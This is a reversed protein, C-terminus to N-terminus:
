LVDLKGIRVPMTPHKLVYILLISLAIQEVLPVVYNRWAVWVFPVLSDM